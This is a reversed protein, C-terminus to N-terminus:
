RAGMVGLTLAGMGMLAGGGLKQLRGRAKPGALRERAWSAALAWGLANLTAMSVFILIMTAFQPLLPWDSRLFQPTFSVFFVMGKPNTATIAFTHLAMRAPSASADVGGFHGQSVPARWMKYGLWILWLAGVARLLEFAAASTSLLAGLGALSLSMGVLDGLGVGLATWIATKRGAGMAYACVLMVTPGPTVILIFAAVMFLPLLTPDM